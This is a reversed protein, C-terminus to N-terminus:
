NPRVLGICLPSIIIKYKLSFAKNIFFFIIDITVDLDKVCRVREFKVGTIENRYKQCKNVNYTIKWM